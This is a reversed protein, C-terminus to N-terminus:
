GSIREVQGGCANLKDELREASFDIAMRTLPQPSRAAPLVREKEAILAAEDIELFRGGPLRFARADFGAGLIVIRQEPDGLLRDRLWDDVIRARTANAINPYKLDAFRRFLAQAEDTMFLEAFRDGCIPERKQADAWRVGCCYWATRAVGSINQIM